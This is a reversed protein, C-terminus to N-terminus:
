EAKGLVHKKLTDQLTDSSFLYDPDVETPRFYIEDLTELDEYRVLHAYGVEVLDEMYRYDTELVWTIKGYPLLQYVLTSATGAVIDINEMASLTIEKMITLKESYGVPLCYSEIQDELQEDIRPKFFVHYGLDILKAIYRGVAHTNTVFEYPILVNRRGGTQSSLTGHPFEFMDSGVVVCEPSHVTSVALLRDRWFQGWTILKDFWRYDEGSIGEMVYSAHYKNYAAGHQHAVTRIKRQQCAYLLPFIVQTDDIGYFTEFQSSALARIHWKRECIYSSLMREVRRLTAAFLTRTYRDVASLDYELRFINDIPVRGYFYYPKRRFVNTLLLRREVGLAEMYTAGLEDLASKAATTRFDDPAFRFFLLDARYRRVTVWNNVVILWNFVHDKLSWEDAKNLLLDVITSFAGQNEHVVDLEGDIIQELLPQYRVYNAFSQAHLFNVVTPLWNIGERWYNDKLRSGTADQLDQCTLLLRRAEGLDYSPVFREQKGDEYTLYLIGTNGERVSVRTKM